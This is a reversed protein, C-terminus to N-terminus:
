FNAANNLIMNINIIKNVVVYKIKTYIDQM